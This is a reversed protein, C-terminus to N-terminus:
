IVSLGPRLPPGDGRPCSGAGLHADPKRSRGSRKAGSDWLRLASAILFTDVAQSTSPFPFPVLVAHAQPFKSGLTGATIENTDPKRYVFASCHSSPIGPPVLALLTSLFNQPARRCPPERGGTQRLWGVSCACQQCM